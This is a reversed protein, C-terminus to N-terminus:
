RSKVHDNLGWWEHIVFLYKNSNTKSKVMYTSGEKGDPTPFTMMTNSLNTNIEQPKEHADKFAKEDGFDRMDKTTKNSNGGCSITLSAILLFLIISIFKNPM